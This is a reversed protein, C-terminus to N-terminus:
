QRRAPLYRHLVIGIVAGGALAAALNGLLTVTVMTARRAAGPAGVRWGFADMVVDLILFAVAAALGSGFALRAALGWSKHAVGLALGVAGAIVFVAPVFLLTFVVHVPLAPGDGREVVAVELLTLGIGLLVVGPGFSLAGAWAMRRSEGSGTLGAVSRGWGASATTVIALVPFISLVIKTLEPVHMPLGNIGVGALLGLLLGGFLYAATILASRFAIRSTESM